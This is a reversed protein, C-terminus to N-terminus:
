KSMMTQGGREELLQQEEYPRILVHRKPKEKKPEAPPPSKKEPEPKPIDKMTAWFGKEYYDGLGEREFVLREISRMTNIQEQTLNEKIGIKGNVNEALGNYLAFRTIEDEANFFKRKVDPTMKAWLNGLRSYGRKNDADSIVAGKNEGGLAGGMMKQMKLINAKQKAEYNQKMSASQADLIQTGTDRDKLHQFFQPLTMPPANPDDIPTVTGDSANESGPNFRYGMRELVSMGTKDKSLAMEAEAMKEDNNLNPNFFDEMTHRLFMIQRQSQSMNKITDGIQKTAAVANGGNFPLTNKIYKAQIKGIVSGKTANYGISRRANVENAMTDQLYKYVQMGTDENLPIIRDGYTVSYNGKGDDSVKGGNAEIYWKTRRWDDANNRSKLLARAFVNGQILSRVAPSNLVDEQESTTFENWRYAGNTSLENIINKTAIQEENAFHKRDLDMQKAKLDLNGIKMALAHREKAREEAAYERAFRSKKSKFADTELLAGGAAGLLGLGRKGEAAADVVAGVTDLAKNGITGLTDLAAQGWSREEQPEKKIEQEETM